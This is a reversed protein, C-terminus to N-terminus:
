SEWIIRNFRTGLYQQKRPSNSYYPININTHHPLIHSSQEIAAIYSKLNPTRWRSHLVKELKSTATPYLSKPSQRQLSNTSPQHTSTNGYQTLILLNHPYHETTIRLSHLPNSSPVSTHRNTLDHYQSNVTTHIPYLTVVCTTPKDPRRTSNLLLSPTRFVHLTSKNNAVRRDSSTHKLPTLKTHYDTAPATLLGLKHWSHLHSYHDLSGEHPLPSHHIPHPPLRNM